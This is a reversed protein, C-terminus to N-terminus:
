HRPRSKSKSKIKDKSQSPAIKSDPKPNKLTAALPPPISTTDLKKGAKYQIKDILKYVGEDGDKVGRDMRGMRVTVGDNEVHVYEGELLNHSYEGWHVSGDPSKYRFIGDRQDKDFGGKYVAGNKTRYEGQGSFQGARYQGIYVDGNYRSSPDEWRFEGHGDMLGGVWGGSYINGGSWKCTGEGHPRGGCSSGTYLGGQVDMSSVPTVGVLSLALPSLIQGRMGCIIYEQLERLVSQLTSLSLSPLVTQSPSPPPPSIDLKLVQKQLDLRPKQPNPLLSISRTTSITLSPEKKQSYLEKQLYSYRDNITSTINPLPSLPYQYHYMSYPHYNIHHNCTCYNSHSTLYKKESYRAQGLKNEEELAIRRAKAELLAEDIDRYRNYGRKEVGDKENRETPWIGSEEKVETIMIVDDVTKRKKSEARNLGNWQSEKYGKSIIVGQKDNNDMSLSSRPSILVNEKRVETPVALRRLKESSVDVIDLITSSEWWKATEEKDHNGKLM